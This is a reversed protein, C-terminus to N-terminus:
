QAAGAEGPPQEAAFIEAADVPSLDKADDYAAAAHEAATEASMAPELKMLCAGFCDIWERKEDPADM